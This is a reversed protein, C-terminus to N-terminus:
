FAEGIYFYVARDGRTFAVDASVNVKYATSALWRIGVGASPLQRTSLLQAFTDAVAGTGGFLVAGLRDAFRWRAEVQAAYLDRDRYQGGTYGRLDNSTGYLCLQNFPVEGDVSCASLRGAVVLDPEVGWYHAFTARLSRFSFDSGLSPSSFGIRLTGYSGQTPLFQNDRTDYDLAPGLSTSRYNLQLAPLEMHLVDSLQQPNVTTELRLDLHRLGIFLNKTVGYLGQLLLFEGDEELPVSVDRAGAQSGIGFFHLNLDARGIAGILRLRDQWLNAQQGFGFARSGNSTAMAALGSVWPRESRNPNYLV